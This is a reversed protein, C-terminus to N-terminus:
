EPLLIDNSRIGPFAKYLPALADRSATPPFDKKAFGRIEVGGFRERILLSGITSYDGKSKWAKVADRPSMNMRVIFPYPTEPSKEAKECIDFVESFAYHVLAAEKKDDPSEYLLCSGEIGDPAQSHFLCGKIIKSCDLEKANLAQYADVVPLEVFILQERKM